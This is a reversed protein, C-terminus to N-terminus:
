RASAPMDADIAATVCPVAPANPDRLMSYGSGLEFRPRLWSQPSPAYLITAGLVRERELGVDVGAWAVREREAAVATPTIGGYNRLDRLSLADWRATLAPM